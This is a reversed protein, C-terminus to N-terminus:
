LVKRENQDSKLERVFPINRRWQGIWPVLSFNLTRNTKLSGHKWSASMRNDLVICLEEKPDASHSKLEELQVVSDL